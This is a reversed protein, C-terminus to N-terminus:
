TNWKGEEMMETYVLIVMPFKPHNRINKLIQYVSYSIDLTQLIFSIVLLQMFLNKVSNRLLFSANIMFRIQFLPANRLEEAM